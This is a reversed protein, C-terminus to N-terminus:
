QFLATDLQGGDNVSRAIGNFLTILRTECSRSRSRLGQDLDLAINLM